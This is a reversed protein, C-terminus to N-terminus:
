SPPLRVRQGGARRAVRVPQGARRDDREAVAEGAGGPRPERVDAPTDCPAVAPEQLYVQGSEARPRPGDGGRVGAPVVAAGARYGPLSNAIEAARNGALSGPLGSGFPYSQNGYTFTGGSPILYDSIWTDISYRQEDHGRRAVRASVRDLIGM